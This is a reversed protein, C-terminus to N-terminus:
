GQNGGKPAATPSSPPQPGGTNRRLNPRLTSPTVRSHWAAVCDILNDKCKAVYPHGVEVVKSKSSGKCDAEKCGMLTAINVTTDWDTSGFSKMALEARIDEPTSTVVAILAVPIAMWFGIRANGYNMFCVIAYLCAANLLGKWTLGFGVITVSSFYCFWIIIGIVLFIWFRNFTPKVMWQRVLKIITGLYLPCTVAPPMFTLLIPGIWQHFPICCVAQQYFYTLLKMLGSDAGGIVIILYAVGCLSELVNDKCMVGISDVFEYVVTGMNRQGIRKVTPVIRQQSSRVTSNPNLARNTFIRSGTWDTMVRGSGNRGANPNAFGPIAGNM